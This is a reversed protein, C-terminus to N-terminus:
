YSEGMNLIAGSLEEYEGVFAPSPTVTWNKYLLIKKKLKKRRDMMHFYLQASRPYSTSATNKFESSGVSEPASTDDDDAFIYIILVMM